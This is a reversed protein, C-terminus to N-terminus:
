SSEPESYQQFWALIKHLAVRELGHFKDGSRGLLRLKTEVVDVLGCCRWFCPCAIDQLM